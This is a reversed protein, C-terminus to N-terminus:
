KIIVQLVRAYAKPDLTELLGLLTEKSVSPFNLHGQLGRGVTFLDFAILGAVYNRTNCIHVFNGNIKKRVRYFGPVKVIGIPKVLESRQKMSGGNGTGRPVGLLESCAIYRARVGM